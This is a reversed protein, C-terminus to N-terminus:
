RAGSKLLRVAEKKLRAVGHLTGLWMTGDRDEAICKVESAPLGEAKTVKVAGTGTFVAIGDYESGFWLDGDTDIFITRVKEGALGEKVTRREKISWEGNVHELKVAGGRDIFGTGIWVSGHSDQTIANVNNNPLGNKVSFYQWAGSSMISLGGRPGDYSGFWMGGASDQFMVYAMSHLLGEGTTLAKWREGDFRFAGKQTGAWLAGERDRLLSYVPFGSPAGPDAVPKVSSGDCTSIGQSHGIWLIGKSDTMLAKVYTLPPTSEIKKVPESHKVEIAYLGDRGGAWLVSGQLAMASVEDPPNFVMWGPPLPVPPEKRILPSDKGIYAIFLALAALVLGYFVRDARVAKM